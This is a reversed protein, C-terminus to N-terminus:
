KTEKNQRTTVCRFKLCGSASTTRNPQVLNLRSKLLFIITLRATTFDCSPLQYTFLDAEFRKTIRYHSSFIITNRCYPSHIPIFFPTISPNFNASLLRTQFAISINRTFNRLNNDAHVFRIPSLFHHFCIPNPKQSCVRHGM